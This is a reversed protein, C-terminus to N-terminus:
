LGRNGTRLVLVVELMLATFGLDDKFDVNIGEEILKRIEEADGQQAASFIPSNGANALSCTIFIIAIVFIIKINM